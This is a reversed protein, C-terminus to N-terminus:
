RAGEREPLAGAMQVTVREARARNNLRITQAWLERRALEEQVRKLTRIKKEFGSEGLLVEQGSNLVLIAEAGEMRVESLGSLEARFARLAALATRLALRSEEPGDVFGEKDLGTILPLDVQENPQVRKFPKGGEDLLYLDGLALVAVERYEHLQVEVERPYRKKVKASKVWPHTLMAQQIQAAELQLLNEGKRLGALRLLEEETARQNGEFRVESLAFFPTELAWHWLASGGWICLASVLAFGLVLKAWFRFKRRRAIRQEVQKPSSKKWRNKKTSARMRKVQPHAYM